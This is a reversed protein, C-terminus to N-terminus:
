ERRDHDHVVVVPVQAHRAVKQSISGLLRSVATRAGHNGVVILDADDGESLLVAAANGEFVVPSVRSAQHPSLKELEVRLVEEMLPQRPELSAGFPTMGYQPRDFVTVADVKADTIEAQRIAWELALRSCESGDWGVVIRHSRAHRPSHVVVVPCTAHSVVRETVSGLLLGSIGGRGRPGVVVLDAGKAQELIATSAHLPSVTLEVLRARDAPLARAVTEELVQRTATHEAPAKAEGRVPGVAPFATVAQLVAHDAEAQRDAWRLLEESEPTLDIGVVVRRNGGDVVGM